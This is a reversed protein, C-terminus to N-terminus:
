SEINQAPDRVSTPYSFDDIEAVSWVAVRPGSFQYLYKDKRISVMVWPNCSNLFSHEVFGHGTLVKAYTEMYSARLARFDARVKDLIAREELGHDETNLRLWFIQTNGEHYHPYLIALIGGCTCDTM